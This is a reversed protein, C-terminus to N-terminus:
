LYYRIIDTKKTYNEVLLLLIGTVEKLFFNSKQIFFNTPTYNNTLM